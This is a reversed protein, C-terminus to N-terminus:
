STWHVMFSNFDILDVTGDSNFDGPVSFGTKGFNTMLLNFDLLDVKGDKNLDYQSYTSISGGGGGGGPSGGGSSPAPASETIVSVEAGATEPSGHSIPRFYYTTGSSLGSITVSHSTVMPSDDTEVTTNPYGYNDDGGAKAETSSADSVSSTGWVVRSSAPHSTTWTITVSDDTPSVGQEASLALDSVIVTRTAQTAINGAADTADYTITYTGAVAPDPVTDGGVVVVVSSDVNDTATTGPDVFTSGTPIHMTADGNLTIVPAELDKVNVTRTVPTAVNGAADTATYTVTYSGLTGVDVASTDANVAVSTDVNDSATAGLDVYPTNINIDTPNAGTVTIVPATTDILLTTNVTATNTLPDTATVVVPLDGEPLADPITVSWSGDGAVTAPYDTGNVHVNITADADTTGSITPTNPTTPAVTLSPANHDYTVSFQAAATNENDAADTAAGAAIDATVDLPGDNDPTITFTYHSGDVATFDGLTGNAVVVDSSDFGTVDESFVVSVPIPSANTPSSVTSSMAVSPDTKDISFSLSQTSNNGVDDTASIDFSHSGESFGSVDIPSSPCAAPTGGDFDCEVDSAGTVDYVVQAGGVTAANLVDSPQVSATIVPADADVDFSNSTVSTTNNGQDTASVTVTHSGTSLTPAFTTGSTCPGPTQDDVACTLTLPTADTASFTITPNANTPGNVPDITVSPAVTDQVTVTRTTTTANGSLDQANYTVTYDGVAGTNVSTASDNTAVLGTDYNDTVTTGPDTYTAGAEIVYPNDGILTISPEQTDVVHVTRTVQLAANSSSDSVDYTVTYDGIVATNVPNNTVISATLDGDYNDSATAGADTYTSGVELTVNADGLLTIVPKTTDVVHVTRSTSTSNLASDESTYTVVYTGLHESDVTDGGIVVSSTLDGDVADISSYGPEVFPTHVELTLPNDGSLTIVPATDQVTVTFTTPTANNASSDPGANCTVVTDGISFPSGSTPTCNAVLTDINDTVTPLDYSVNAGAASTAPASVDAHAAIVPASDYVGVDFHASSSNGVADTATCNVTTTGLAFPSGSAPTCVPIVTGDVNDMATVTFNVPTTPLATAVVSVSTPATIVPPTLDPFVCPAHNLVQSVTLVCAGNQALYNVTDQLTAPTEAYVDNDNAPNAEIQHFVLILWLKNVLATHIWAEITSTPTSSDLDEVVLRYPDTNKTNFGEDITRAASFGGAAVQATSTSNFSGFPYALNDDPSIGMAQMEIKSNTIEAQSTTAASLAHDPCGVGPNGQPGTVLASNPDAQLAVLDCHDATHSAIDHGAAQMELVQAPSMYIYSSDPAVYSTYNLTDNPIIYFTGHMAGGPANKLTSSANYQDLYGDDFTLSVMGNDYQGSTVGESLSADDVTLSGGVTDLLQFVSAQVAGPPPSIVASFTSFSGPSPKVSSSVVEYCDVHSPDGQIASCESSISNASNVIYEVDVETDVNSMYKDSFTYIQGSTVTVPSPSWQIQGTGGTMHVEAAKTGSYYSAAPYTGGGVVSSDKYFNWNDPGGVSGNFPTTSTEFCPNAFLDNGANLACPVGPLNYTVTNDTATSALNANNSADHAMGAAISPIVTGSSTMGSVAVSYTTGTGTVVATTAGATGSLTVDGTAFDTVPASFVVTFDIPSDGTPDSQGASQNITVTLAPPNVVVANNLTFTNSPLEGSENTCNQGSYAVLYLSYTGTSAPTTINFNGTLGTQAGITSSPNNTCSATGVGNTSLLWSTSQWDNDNGSSGITNGTVTAAITASPTTTTSTGGGVTAATISRTPNQVM